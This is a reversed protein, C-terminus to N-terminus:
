AEEEYLNGAYQEVGMFGGTLAAVQDIYALADLMDDKARKNPFDAMEDMLDDVWPQYGRPFLLRGHELRGGLAWMVRDVKKKGGHLLPLPEVFYGIKRMQDHLYPKVANMLAGKEIGPDRVQYDQCAKLIEVSTQRVDWRGTRIERCFWDHGAVKVIAIATKDLQKYRSDDESEDAFGALDVAITWLGDRPEDAYRIWEPKLLKGGGTSPKSLYQERFAESTMHKRAYEVEDKSIFPNDLTTYEFYGWDHDGKFDQALQWFHNKGKLTGIFLAGGLVDTLMPRIAVDWAQPPMNAYEDMAVYSLGVGHLSDPDDAGKIEIFRGNQLQLRGENEWSKGPIMVPEAMRKLRTWAIRKEQKFTPGVLWVDKDTLDYGNLETRLGEILLKQIAFQTKGFRRGAILINFRSASRLVAQQAPHFNLQLTPEAM